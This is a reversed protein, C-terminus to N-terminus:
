PKGGNERRRAMVKAITETLADMEVPKALYGDMGAALFQERDGSMAYATLAIIPIASKSKLEPSNRIAHTAEVGDMVPMQVDMVILDFEGHRLRELAQEGDGATTVAHGSRELLYKVFLLNTDEDEALLIRLAGSAQGPEAGGVLATGESSQAAVGFSFVAHASTGVGEESVLCLEGGMLRALRRVIALGLGAGQYRRIFSGEVQIFPEFIDALMHDPIGIGTDTVSFLVRCPSEGPPSVLDIGIEVGGQVTFKVANGVLNFLIQRLRAEDGVLGAPVSPDVTWRLAVGKEATEQAFLDTVSQCLERIDFAAPQISLKGSEIVSLDLIDGLLRTLRKSSRVANDLYEHQEEHLPTAQLLQQMGMIGNLPTRIEHSMNALFESKAKSAAEAKDALEEAQALASRLATMTAERDIAVAFLGALRQVIDLDRDTYAAPTNALAIIGILADGIMAPVALFNRLPVHGAPAGSSAPHAAPENTYFSRRTNLVHGSLNPYQGDPGCPFAIRAQGEEVRCEKGMMQTLTYAIMDRAKPDIVAVFGHDSQTLSKSYRLTIDAMDQITTATTILAQSMESMAKNVALERALNDEARKRETIDRIMGFSGMFAGREDVLAKASISTWVLGGDKRRLRREYNGSEGRRRRAMMANHDEIEEPAVLASMNMGILEDQTVGLMSQIIANAYTVVHKADLYIIGETATDVILRYKRESDALEKEAAKRRYITVLLTAVLACLLTFVAAGLWIRMRYHEYFSFPRNLIVAKPPLAEASLGFRQMQRYDFMPINPSAMVVPIQDAPRGELIQVALSAATRGQEQGSIVNGGLAGEGVDFDWATFVPVPSHESIINMSELLSLFGNDPKLLNILRLVLSNSPLRRLAEPADQTTLNLLEVFEARGKFRDAVARFHALHTRSNAERDSVIGVIRTAQPFLGLALDLTPAISVEENVGTINSQGQLREPTFNNVGCFVVPTRPFLESRITLLFDLAPDDSVLILDQPKNRYKARLYEAMLREHGPGINRRLDMNEIALNVHQLRDLVTRVGQVINDNWRDGQHYSTILLIRKSAIDQDGRAPTSLFLLLIGLVGWTIIALLFDARSKRDLFGYDM